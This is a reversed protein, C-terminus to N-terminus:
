PLGVKGLAAKRRRAPAGGGRAAAGRLQRSQHGSADISAEIQALRPIAKAALEFYDAYREIGISTYGLAEAAAITTGAGMFPDLVVGTGLPLSAHVMQRMWSQPKLSPHEAIDRERRPTRESQIVDCFPKGDPLRRLGGTGFERLCQRVTMGKPLPKRFLGWPEYCGRPLSCVEPFEDEALKPRDGGRLTQVRRIIQTRFELGADILCSFVLQSMFANCAVFLHAGPKMAVRVLEGWGCFFQRLTEREGGDLATFRPLPARANGDFNPPIRWIGAGGKKMREIEAVEYEKIGYPPDTVVADISDPPVRSLWEVCDALVVLSDGIKRSKYNFGFVPQLLPPQKVHATAM